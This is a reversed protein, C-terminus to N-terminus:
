IYVAAKHKRSMRNLEDLSVVRAPYPENHVKQAWDQAESVSHFTPIYPAIPGTECSNQIFPYNPADYEHLIVIPM